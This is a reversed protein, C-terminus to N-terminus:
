CGAEARSTAAFVARVLRRLFHELERADNTEPMVRAGLPRACARGLRDCTIRVALRRDPEAGFVQVELGEPGGRIELLGDKGSEFRMRYRVGSEAPDDTSVCGALAVRSGRTLAIPGATLNLDRLKRLLARTKEESLFRHALDIM